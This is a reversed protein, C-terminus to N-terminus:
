EQTKIKQPVPHLSGHEDYCYLADDMHKYEGTFRTASSSTSTKAKDLKYCTSLGERVLEIEAQYSLATGFIALLFVILLLLFKVDKM